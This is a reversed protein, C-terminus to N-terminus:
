PYLLPALSENSLLGDLKRLVGSFKARKVHNMRGATARSWELTLDQLALGCDTARAAIKNLGTTSIGETRIAMRLANWALCIPDPDVAIRIRAAAFFIQQLARNVQAEQAAELGQAAVWGPTLDLPRLLAREAPKRIPALEAKEAQSLGAWVGTVLRYPDSEHVAHKVM